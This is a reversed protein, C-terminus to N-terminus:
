HIPKQRYANKFQPKAILKATGEIIAVAKDQGQTALIAQGTISLLKILVNGVDDTNICGCANVYDQIKETALKEAEEPSIM